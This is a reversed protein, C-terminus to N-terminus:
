QFVHEKPVECSCYICRVNKTSLTRQCKPCALVQHALRNDKSGDRLDVETIKDVLEDETLGVRERLLEWVAQSVLTVRALQQEMDRLRSSHQSVQQKASAASSEAQSVQQQQRLEWFFDIM